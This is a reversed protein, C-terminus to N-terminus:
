EGGLYKLASRLVDPSDKAMGLLTNCKVCLLGRVCKGCSRYGPCCSHDHDVYPGERKGEGFETKCIECRGDQDLLMQNFREITLKFRTLLKIAKIKEPNDHYFKKYYERLRERNRDKWRNAASDTAM